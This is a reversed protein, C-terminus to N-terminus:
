VDHCSKYYDLHAFRTLERTKKTAVAPSDPSSCFSGRHLPFPIPAVGKVRSDQGEFCVMFGTSAYITGIDVTYPMTVGSARGNSLILDYPQQKVTWAYM